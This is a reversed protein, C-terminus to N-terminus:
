DAIVKFLPRGVDVPEENRAIVGVIKGSIGAPIENFMKMAEVICVITDPSVHDGIKVFAPDGPKASTYFTGVMPSKIVATNEPEAAPTSASAGTTASAAAQQSVAPHMAPASVFTTEQGSRIRIRKHGQRLDIETLEHEKMLSVLQRVREIEFVDDGECDHGDQNSKENAM